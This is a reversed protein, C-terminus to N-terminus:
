WRKNYDIYKVGFKKLTEQCLFNQRVELKKRFFDIHEELLNYKAIIRTKGNHKVPFVVVAIHTGSLLFNFWSFPNIACHAADERAVLLGGRYNYKEETFSYCIDDNYMVALAIRSSM